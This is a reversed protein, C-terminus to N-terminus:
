LVRGGRVSILGAEIWRAQTEALARLCADAVQADTLGHKMWLRRDLVDHCRHCAFCAHLDSSKTAVGKGPSPLHALVTTAPDFCCVGPLRLACPQGRASATLADSRVKPLLVPSTSM